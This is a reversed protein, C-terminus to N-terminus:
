PTEGDKADAMMRATVAEIGLGLIEELTKQRMEEDVGFDSRIEPPLDSVLDELDRAARAQFSPDNQLEKMLAHLESRADTGTETAKPREIDLVIKDIWVGGLARAIEGVQENLLDQDRRIQWALPTAGALSLRVVVHDADSQTCTTLSAKIRDLADRLDDVGELGCTVRQFEVASTSIEQLEVARNDDVVVLTASKSGEEGIDRGQPMGPMVIHPHEHHVTRIHIHGLAWYDYGQAVLDSVSCPAYTDHGSAGALSTHLLGINFHGPVPAAYKPLLSEPAQPKAFSVGHIAVGHAELVESGGHGTFAHVNPPLSLERTLVSEADHNGRIMFVPIGATNLREMQAGLFAATKMSRIDGDNLDGAILLADVEEEIATDVIRELAQRTASGVLESLEPDKLALSRLPADLHLDATHIFRFM